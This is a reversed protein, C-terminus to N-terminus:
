VAKQAHHKIHASLPMAAWSRDLGAFGVSGSAAFSSWAAVRAEKYGRRLSGLGPPKANAPTSSPALEPSRHGEEVPGSSAISKRWWRHGSRQGQERDPIDSFTELAAVATRM